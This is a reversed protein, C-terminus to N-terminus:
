DFYVTFRILSDFLPIFRTTQSFRISFLEARKIMPQIRDFKELSAFRIRETFQYLYLYLARM